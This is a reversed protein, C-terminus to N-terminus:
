ASVPAVIKVNSPLELMGVEVLALVEWVAYNTVNAPQDPRRQYQTMKNEKFLKALTSNPVGLIQALTSIPEVTDVFVNTPLEYKEFEPADEDFDALKRAHGSPGEVRGVNNTSAPPRQVNKNASSARGEVRAAVQDIQTRMTAELGNLATQIAELVQEMTLSPPPPVLAAAPAELDDFAKLLQTEYDQDLVAQAANRDYGAMVKGKDDIKKKPAQLPNRYLLLGTRYLPGFGLSEVRDKLNDIRSLLTDSVLIAGNLKVERFLGPLRKNSLYAHVITWIILVGRAIAAVLFATTGPAILPHGDLIKKIDAENIILVIVSSAELTGVALAFLLHELLMFVEGRAALRPIRPITRAFSRDMSVVAIFFLGLIFAAIIKSTSDGRLIQIVEQSGSVFLAIISVAYIVVQVDLTLKEEAAQALSPRPFVFYWLGKLPGHEVVLQQRRERPTKKKPEPPMPQAQMQQAPNAVPAAATM